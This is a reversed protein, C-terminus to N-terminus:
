YLFSQIKFQDMIINKLDFFIQSLSTNQSIADALVMLSVAPSM